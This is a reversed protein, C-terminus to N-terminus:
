LSAIRELAEDQESDPNEFRIIWYGYFRERSESAARDFDVGAEKLEKAKMEHLSSTTVEPGMVRVHYNLYTFLIFFVASLLAEAEENSAERCELTGEASRELPRTNFNVSMGFTRETTGMEVFTHALVNLAELDGQEAATQGFPMLGDVLYYISEAPGLRGLLTDTADRVSTCAEQEVWTKDIEEQPFQYKFFGIKRHLLRAKHDRIYEYLISNVFNMCLHLSTYDASLTLNNLSEGLGRMGLSVTNRDGSRVGVITRQAMFGCFEAPSVRGFWVSAFRALAIFVLLVPGMSGAAWEQTSRSASDGNLDLVGLLLICVAPVEFLLAVVFLFGPSTTVLAGARSTYTAAQQQIVLVIVGFAITVPVAAFSALSALFTSITQPNASLFTWGVLRQAFVALLLSAFVLLVSFTM